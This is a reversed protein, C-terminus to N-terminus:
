QVQWFSERLKPLLPEVQAPQTKLTEQWKQWLLSTLKERVTLTAVDM